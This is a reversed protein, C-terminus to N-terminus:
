KLTVKPAFLGDRYWLLPPMVQVSGDKLTVLQDGADQTSRGLDSGRLGPAKVPAGFSGDPQGPLLTPTKASGELVLRDGAGSGTLSGASASGCGSPYDGSLKTATVDVPDNSKADAVDSFSLLYCEEEVTDGDGTTKKLLLQDAVTAGGNGGPAVYGANVGSIEVRFNYTGIHDAGGDKSTGRANVGSIEVMFNYAGIHDLEARGGRRRTVRKDGDKGAARARPVVLYSTTQGKANEANVALGSGLVESGPYNVVWADTIRATDGLFSRATDIVGTPQMQVRVTPIPTDVPQEGVLLDGGPGVAFAREDADMVVSDAGEYINVSGPGTNALRQRRRIRHRARKMRAERRIHASARAGGRKNKQLSVQGNWECNRPPQLQEIEFVTPCTDHSRLWSKAVDSFKEIRETCRILWVDPAGQSLLATKDREAENLSRLQVDGYTSAMTLLGDGTWVSDVEIVRELDSYRGFDAKPDSTGPVERQLRGGSTLWWAVDGNKLRVPAAAAAGLGSQELSSQGALATTKTNIRLLVGRELNQRDDGAPQQNLSAVAVDGTSASGLGARPVEFLYAADCGEVECVRRSVGALTGYKGGYTSLGHVTAGSLQDDLLTVASGFFTEKTKTKPNVKISGFAISVEVDGPQGVGVVLDEIGDGDVDFLREDLLIPNNGDGDPLTIGQSRNSRSANHSTAMVKVEGSGTKPDRDLGVLFLRQAPRCHEPLTGINKSTAALCKEKQKPSLRQQVVHAAEHAALHLREEGSELMKPDFGFDSVKLRRRDEGVGPTVTRLEVWQDGGPKGARVLGSLVALDGKRGWGPQADLLTETSAVKQITQPKQLKGGIARVVSVQAGIDRSSGPSVFTWGLFDPRGDGDVDGGAPGGLLEAGKPLAVEQEVTAVLTGGSAADKYDTSDIREKMRIRRIRGSFTPGGARSYVMWVGEGSGGETKELPWAGVLTEGDALPVAGSPQLAPSVSLKGADLTYRLGGVATRTTKGVTVSVDVPGPQGARRPPVVRLGEAPTGKVEVYQGDISVEVAADKPVEGDFELTVVVEGPRTTSALAPSIEAIGAFMSGKQGKNKGKAIQGKSLAGAGAKTSSELEGGDACAALGLACCVGVSTLKWRWAKM